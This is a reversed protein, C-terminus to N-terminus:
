RFNAATLNDVPAYDDTLVTPAFENLYAGLQNRPMVYSVRLEKEIQSLGQTLDRIGREPLNAIVVRNEVGISSDVPGLTILHVQGVGFVEELTRIYAPLFSGKEFRDIVNTLLLGNKKLLRRLGGAFERTTLQYPISLDNFADLFIFDYDGVEPHNMVFWRGDENFTRIRSTGSLGMYRRSIQTVLPDVEVVDIEAKPYEAELFRPFTYGGGGIFLTRFSERQEAKWKVVERYSQLYRFQLHSPDELDSCSHTLQDLYLTIQRERGYWSNRVLRITYYNSEKLLITEAGSPPTSTYRHIPWLFLPLAVLVCVKRLKGFDLVFLSCLLLLIGVFFLLNRTGILAILFFGATFTGLISGAASLAYIRGAVSGAGEAETLTLKLAIPSVMGLFFSPVFFILSTVLLTRGMLNGSLHARGIITTLPAIVFAGLASLILIWGLTSLSPWRDASFGGAWAGASIGALVVGIISTWTYLSVGLYPALIRGAVIEMVMISFSSFFVILYSKARESTM